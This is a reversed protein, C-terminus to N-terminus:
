SIVLILLYLLLLNGVLIGAKKHVGKAKFQRRYLVIMGLSPFILPILYYDYLLIVSISIFIVSILSFSLIIARTLKPSYKEFAEEDSVEHIIQAAFGFFFVGILISIEGWFLPESYNPIKIILYPIIVHSVVLVFKNIIPYKKIKLCYLIVLVAAIIFLVLDLLSLIFTNLMLLIGACFSILFMSILQKQTFILDRDQDKIDNLLNGAIGIFIWGGILRIFNLLTLENIYIALIVPTIV